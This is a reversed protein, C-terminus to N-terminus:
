QAWRDSRDEEPASDVSSRDDEKASLSAGWLMVPIVAFWGLLSLLTYLPQQQPPLQNKQPGLVSYLGLVMFIIGLIIVHINPAVGKERAARATFYGVAANIAAGGLSGLLLVFGLDGRRVADAGALTVLLMIVVALMCGLGCSWGCGTALVGADVDGSPVPRPDAM